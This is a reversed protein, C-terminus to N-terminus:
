RRVLMDKTVLFRWSKLTGFVSRAPYWTFCPSSSAFIGEAFGSWSPLSFFGRGCSAFVNLSGRSDPLPCFGDPGSELWAPHVPQRSSAEPLTPNGGVPHCPRACCPRPFGGRTAAGLRLVRLRDFPGKAIPIISLWPDCSYVRIAQFLRVTHHATGVLQAARDLAALGHHLSKRSLIVIAWIPEDDRSCPTLRANTM